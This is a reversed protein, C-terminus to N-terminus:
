FPPKILPASKSLGTTLKHLLAWQVVGIGSIEFAGSCWLVLAGQRHQAVARLCASCWFVLANSCWLM